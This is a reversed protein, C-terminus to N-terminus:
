FLAIREPASFIENLRALEDDNFRVSASQANARVQDPTTAGAIVSAVPNQQKLWSISAQVESTGLDACFERYADLQEWDAQALVQAKSHSLRSGAPISDRRYKGTLLGNALPFYPLVGLGFHRAAPLIELEARRDLLNYHNEAVIFRETGLERALHEAHALQWGAFNSHGLYRVKGSTVLTDLASLTEELPTNQDPSHYFYLDIYETGLRRLSGEVARMIYRRSGRADWDNGNLTGTPLGFKTVIILDDRNLNLERMATGFMTESLGPEAGYLDAIDFFGIGAEVAAAIVANTGEQTQTPTGPRGLNNCGIGVSPVVLGSNGLRAYAPSEIREM